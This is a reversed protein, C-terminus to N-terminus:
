SIGEARGSVKVNRNRGDLVTHSAVMAVRSTRTRCSYTYKSGIQVNRWGRKGERKEILIWIMAPWKM